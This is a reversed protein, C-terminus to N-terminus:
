LVREILQHIIERYKETLHFVLSTVGWGIVSGAIVDSLFHKQLIIRSLAIAIIFPLMLHRKGEWSGILLALCVAVAMHSSPFSRFANSVQGFSCGSIGQCILLHPRARAIGLKLLGCVFMIFGISLWYQLFPLFANRWSTIICSLAILTTSIMLHLMPLSLWTYAAVGKQLFSINAALYAIPFDLLFYSALAFTLWFFLYM